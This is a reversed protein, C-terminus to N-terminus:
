PAPTAICDNANGDAPHAFMYGTKCECHYSHGHENKLYGKKQAEGPAVCKGEDKDCQHKGSICPHEPTPAPTPSPTPAPTPCAAVNCDQDQALDSPCAIGGNTAHVQVTRARSQSGSGCTKTCTTWAEWESVVCDIPCGFSNCGQTDTLKPCAVGDHAVDITIQRVRSQTGTGCSKDCANWASWGSVECDVPCADTNCEKDEALQDCGVGGHQPATTVRRTRTTSGGGCSKSCAQWASWGSVVCDVPCADTNCQQTQM